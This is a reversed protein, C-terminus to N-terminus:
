MCYARACARENAHACAISSALAGVTKPETNKYTIICAFSHAARYDILGGGVLAADSQHVWLPRLRPAGTTASDWQQQQQQPPPPLLWPARPAAVTGLTCCGSPAVTGTIVRQRCSAALCQSPQSLVADHQLHCCPTRQSPFHHHQSPLPVRIQVGTERFGRRGGVELFEGPAGKWVALAVLKELTKVDYINSKWTKRQSVRSWTSQM